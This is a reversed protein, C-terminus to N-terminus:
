GRLSPLLGEGWRIQTNSTHSNFPTIEKNSQTSELVDYTKQNSIQADLLRSHKIHENSWTHVRMHTCSLSCACTHAYTCMLACMRKHTPTHTHTCTSRRTNMHTPKYTQAHM